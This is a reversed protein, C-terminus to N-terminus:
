KKKDNEVSLAFFGKLKSALMYVHRGLQRRGLNSGSKSETSGLFFREYNNNDSKDFSGTLGKTNFCEIILVKIEEQNANYPKYNKNKHYIKHLGSLYKEYFIKNKIIKETIRVEVTKNKDITADIRNQGDENALRQHIKRDETNLGELNPVHYQKGLYPSAIWKPKITETM